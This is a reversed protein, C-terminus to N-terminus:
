PLTTPLSCSRLAEKGVGHERLLRTCSGKAASDVGAARTGKNYAHDINREGCSTRRVILLPESVFRAEEMRYAM